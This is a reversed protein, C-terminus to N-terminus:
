NKSSLNPFSPVFHNPAAPQRRRGPKPLGVRQSLYSFAVRLRGARVVKPDACFYSGMKADWRRAM